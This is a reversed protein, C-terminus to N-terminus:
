SMLIRLVKRFARLPLLVFRGIKWTRSTHLLNFQHTLVAHEHRARDLLFRLEGAEAAAGIASDRADLFAIQSDSLKQELHEMSRTLELVKSNEIQTEHLSKHIKTRLSEIEAVCRARHMHEHDRVSNTTAVLEQYLSIEALLQDVQATDSYKSKYPDTQAASRTQPVAKVVYQYATADRDQQVYTIAELPIDSQHTGLESYGVEVTVPFIEAMEFNNNTLFTSISSRTFFRLHTRDLLGTEQYDFKGALLSLRVDGHAINPLSIVVYGDSQLLDHLQLLVLEPRPCHELVDGALVVDFKKGILRDRLDLWDLDTIIVEDALDALQEAFRGDREVVTVTNGLEKLAKTVHGSAAGLELVTKGQGVLQLAIGHASTTNLSDVHSTYISEMLIFSIRASLGQRSDSEKFLWSFPFIALRRNTLLLLPM